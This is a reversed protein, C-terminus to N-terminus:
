NNNIGNLSLCLERTKDTHKFYDVRWNSIDTRWELSDRADEIAEELTELLKTGEYGYIYADKYYVLYDYSIDNSSSTSSESM